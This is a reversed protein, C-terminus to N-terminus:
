EFLLRVYFMESWPGPNGDADIGRVHWYYRSNLIFDTEPTWATGGLAITTGLTDTPEYGYRYRLEYSLAAGDSPASWVFTPTPDNVLDSGNAPSVPAPVSDSITFSLATSWATWEAAGIRARVRWWATVGATFPTAPVYASDALPGAVEVGTSFDGDADIGIEYDIAGSFGNWHISAPTAYLIRGDMPTTETLLYAPPEQYTCHISGSWAGWTGSANRARVAWWLSEGDGLPTPVTYSRDALEISPSEALGPETAAAKLEWATAGDVDGWTLIPTPTAVISGDAPSFGSILYAFGPEVAPNPCAALLVALAAVLAAGFRRTMTRM